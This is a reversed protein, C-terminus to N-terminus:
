IHILSLFRGAALYSLALATSGIIRVDGAELILRRIVESRQARVAPDYGGDVGVYAQGWPVPSDTLHLREGNLHAGAGIAGTFMEDHFPNFVVGVSFVGEIEVGISVASVRWGHIFNATGDLPDVIWRRGSTGQFSAGEEGLIADDPFEDRIRAVILREAAADTETVVDMVSRKTAVELQGTQRGQVLRRGADRAIAQASELM